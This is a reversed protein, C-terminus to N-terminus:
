RDWPNVLIRVPEPLELPPDGLEPTSFATTRADTYSEIQGDPAVNATRAEVNLHAQKLQLRVGPPLGRFVFRGEADSVAAFTDPDWTPSTGGPDFPQVARVTLNPLPAGTADDVLRGRVVAGRPLTVTVAPRDLTLHAVSHDGTPGVTATWTTAPDNFFLGPLVVVGDGGTVPPDSWRHGGAPGDRRLEVPAGPVPRGDADRVTVTATEVNPLRVDLDRVPRRATVSFTATYGGTYRHEPGDPHLEVRYTGGLPAPSLTFTGDPRVPVNNVSDYDVRGSAPHAEVHLGVQGGSLPTGDAQRAVGRVVGAPHVRHEVILPEDGPEVRIERGLFGDDPEPVWYGPANLGRLRVYAADRLEVEVRAEGNKLPVPREAYGHYAIQAVGEPPPWGAPPVFRLVVPRTAPPPDVPEAADAAPLDLLIDAAAASRLDDLKKRIPGAEVTAPGPLAVGRLPFRTPDHPDAYVREHTSYSSGGNPASDLAQAFSLYPRGAHDRDLRDTDGTVRFVPRVAPPLAVRLPEADESPTVGYILVPGRDPAVVYLTHRAGRALQDLEFRGERDATALRTRDFNADNRPDNMSRTRSDWVRHVTAYPVPNGADPDVIVGRVPLAPVLEIELADGPKPTLDARHPEFGPANVAFTIRQGGLHQLTTRGDADTPPVDNHGGHGTQGFWVTPSEVVVNRLPRGDNDTVAIPLDFGPKLVLEFDSKTSGPGLRYSATSVPAYGAVNVSVSVDGPDVKTEFTLRTPDEADPRVSIGTTRGAAGGGPTSRVYVGAPAESLNTNDGARVSGRVTVRVESRVRGTADRPPASAPLATDPLADRVRALHAAPDSPVVGDCAAQLLLLLLLGGLRRRQPRLLLSAPAPSRDKM